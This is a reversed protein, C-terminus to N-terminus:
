DNRGIKVLKGNSFRVLDTPLLQLLLGRRGANVCITAHQSASEDIFVPFTKKMGLPCCAGRQYGVTKELDAIPLLNVKRNGSLTALAKLDLQQDGGIVAVVVDTKDGKLVLTKFIQALPLGNAEAIVAVDLNNPDYAYEVLSYEAKQQDLQRMANTKKM